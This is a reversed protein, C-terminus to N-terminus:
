CLTNGRDLFQLLGHLVAIGSGLVIKTTAVGSTFANRLVVPLRGPEKAQGGFLSKCPALIVQAKGVILTISNWLFGGFGSLPIAQSGLLTIMLRLVIKRDAVM